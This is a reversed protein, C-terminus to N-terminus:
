EPKNGKKREDDYPVTHDTITINYRPKNFIEFYKKVEEDIENADKFIKDIERFDLGQEKLKKTGNEVLDWFKKEEETMLLRLNANLWADLRKVNLRLQDIVFQRNESTNPLDDQQFQQLVDVFSKISNLCIRPPYDEDKM